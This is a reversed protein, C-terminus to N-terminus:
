FNHRARINQIAEKYTPSGDGMAIDERHQQPQYTAIGGERPYHAQAFQNRHVAHAANQILRSSSPLVGGIRRPSPSQAMKNFGGKMAYPQILDRFSIRKREGSSNATRASYKDVSGHSKQTSKTKLDIM